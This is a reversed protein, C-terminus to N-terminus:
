AQENKVVQYCIPDTMAPQTESGFLMEETQKAEEADRPFFGGSLCYVGEIECSAQFAKAEEETRFYPSVPWGIVRYGVRQQDVAVYFYEVTLPNIHPLNPLKGAQTNISSM